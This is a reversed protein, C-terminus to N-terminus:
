STIPMEELPKNEAVINSESDPKSDSNVLMDDREKVTVEKDNVELIFKEEDCVPTVEINQESEVALDIKKENSKEEVPSPKKAKGSAANQSLKSLTGTKAPFKSVTPKPVTKKSLDNKVPEPRSKTPLAKNNLTMANRAPVSPNKLNDTKNLVNKRASIQKNVIDKTEKVDPKKLTLPVNKRMTASLPKTKSETPTPKTLSLPKTLTKNPISTAVPRNLTNSRVTSAVNSKNSQNTSPGKSVPATSSLPRATTKTGSMTLASKPRMTGSISSSGVSKSSSIQSNETAPHSALKSQTSTIRTTASAINRAPAATAVKSVSSVTIEKKVKTVASTSKGSKDVAAKPLTSSVTRLKSKEKVESVKKETLPKRTKEVSTSTKLKSKNDPISKSIEKKVKITSDAKNPLKGVKTASEKSKSKGSGITNGKMYSWGGDKESDSDVDETVGEAEPIGEPLAQLDVTLTETSCEEVSLVAAATTSLETSIIAEPNASISSLILSADKLQDSVASNEIEAANKPSALIDSLIKAANSAQDSLTDNKVESVNTPSALTNTLVDMKLQDSSLSNEVNTAIKPHSSIDDFNLLKEGANDFIESNSVDIANSSLLGIHTEAESKSSGLVNVVNSNSENLEYPRDQLNGLSNDLSSCVNYDPTAAKCQYENNSDCFPNEIHSNSLFSSNDVPASLASILNIEAGTVPNLQQLDIIESGVASVQFPEDSIIDAVNSMHDGIGEVDGAVKDTSHTIINSDDPTNARGEQDTEHSSEMDSFIPQSFNLPSEPHLPEKNKETSLDVSCESVNMANTPSNENKIESNFASASLDNTMLSSNHVVTKDVSDINSLDSVNESVTTDVKNVVESQTECQFQNVDSSVSLTETQLEDSDPIFSKMVFPEAYPNLKHSISPTLAESSIQKMATEITDSVVCSAIDVAEEPTIDNREFKIEETISVDKNESIVDHNSDKVSIPTPNPVKTSHLLINTNSESVECNIDVISSPNSMNSDSSFSNMDQYFDASSLKEFQQSALVDDIPPTPLESLATAEPALHSPVKTYPIFIADSSSKQFSVGEIANESYPCTYSPDTIGASSLVNATNKLKKASATSLELVTPKVCPSNSVEESLCEKEGGNMEFYNLQSRTQPLLKMAYDKIANIDRLFVVIATINDESGQLKSQHVLKAAVADLPEDLASGSLNYYLASTVDEPSMGDWLGDCALILFDETGDLEFTTIEPESTIYRKHDPDGFARTVALIGNVRPVGTHSTIEGGVGEIRKKEDMREPKHPDTVIVPKGEKVLVAQSDGLWSLYVKKERVLACVVTSGSKLNEESCKKLFNEDTIKYAEAIATETDTLFAPHKVINVHLHASAYSAADVGSHGDFVAYYSHAPADKLDLLLNLDHHIVHRDEMKRRKNKIAFVSVTYPLACTFSCVEKENIDEMFSDCVVPLQKITESYLTISNLFKDENENEQSQKSIGAVIQQATNKAIAVALQYPCNEEFNLYRRYRDLGSIDSRVILM